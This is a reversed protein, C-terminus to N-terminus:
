LSFREGVKVRYGCVFPWANMEKKGQPKLKKIKLVNRGTAAYIGQKDIKVITSPEQDTEVDQAEAELIQVPKDKYYAYASPWGLTARILNRIQRAGCKWSIKGDEKKLKYTFSALNEDQPILVYNGNEIKEIAEILSFAGLRALKRPLSVIDDKDDIAINKQLIIEGGDVKDNIKFITVGTQNEGNIIARSIPAPGRYCPLLSPHLGLPMVQPLKLLWHPLIRGYDAVLFFDAGETQLKEKLEQTDLSLPMILPINKDKAFLNVETPLIKLGRRKPKDPQSVVLCPKVGQNYLQKLVFYAFQGSGFYIFKM